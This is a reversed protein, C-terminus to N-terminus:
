INLQRILYKNKRLLKNNKIKKKIININRHHFCKYFIHNNSKAIIYINHVILRYIICKHQYVFKTTKLLNILCNIDLYCYLNNLIFTKDFVEYLNTKLKM